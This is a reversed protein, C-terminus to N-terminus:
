HHTSTNSLQTVYLKVKFKEVTENETLCVAWIPLMEKHIDKAADM